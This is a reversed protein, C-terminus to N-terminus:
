NCNKTVEYYIESKFTDIRRNIPQQVHVVWTDSDNMSRAVNELNGNDIQSYCKLVSLTNIFGRQQKFDRTDKVEYSDVFSRVTSNRGSKKQNVNFNKLESGYSKQGDSTKPYILEWTSRYDPIEIKQPRRIPSWMVNFVRWGTRDPLNLLTSLRYYKSRLRSPFEAQRLSKKM